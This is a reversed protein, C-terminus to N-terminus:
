IIERAHMTQRCCDLSTPQEKIPEKARYLRKQTIYTPNVFLCNLNQFYYNISSRPPHHVPVRPVGGQIRRHCQIGQFCIYYGVKLLHRLYNKLYFEEKRLEISRSNEPTEHSTSTPTDNTSPAKDFSPIAFIIDSVTAYPSQTTFSLICLYHVPSNLIYFVETRLSPQLWSCIQSTCTTENQIRAKAMVAYLLASIHSCAEGAGAM